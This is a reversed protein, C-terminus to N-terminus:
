TAVVTFVAVAPLGTTVELVALIVVVMWVQDLEEMGTVDAREVVKSIALEVVSASAEAVDAAGASM